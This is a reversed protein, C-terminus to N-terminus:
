YDQANRYWEEEKPVPPFEAPEPVVKGFDFWCGDPNNEDTRDLSRIYDLVETQHKRDIWLTGYLFEGINTEKSTQM